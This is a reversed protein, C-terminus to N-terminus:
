GIKILNVLHYNKYSSLVERLFKLLDTKQRELLSWKTMNIGQKKMTQKFTDKEPHYKFTFDAIYEEVLVDVDWTEIIDTDHGTITVKLARFEHDKPHIRYASPIKVTDVTPEKGSQCIHETFQRVPTCIDERVEGSWYYDEPVDLTELIEGTKQSVLAVFPEGCEQPSHYIAIVNVPWAKKASEQWEKGEMYGITHRITRSPM